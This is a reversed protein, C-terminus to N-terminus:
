YMNSFIFLKSSNMQAAACFIVCVPRVYSYDLRIGECSLSISRVREKEIERERVCM